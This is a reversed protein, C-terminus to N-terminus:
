QSYKVRHRAECFDCAVIKESEQPDYFITCSDADCAACTWRVAPFEDHIMKIVEGEVDSPVDDEGMVDEEAITIKM